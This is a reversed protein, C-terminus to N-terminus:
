FKMGLSVFWTRGPNYAAFDKNVNDLLNNIGLQADGQLDKYIPFRQTYVFSSIYYSGTSMETVEGNNETYVTRPSMFRFSLLLNYSWQKTAPLFPLHQQRFQVNGTATHKSNGSLQRNTSKDVANAFAYGGRIQFYKLFSYQLAADLGSIRAEEVNEYKMETRNEAENFVTLTNIKNRISNDYITISANLDSDVYEASIAKYWSEEPALKDNGVVWFPLNEGIYHPFEMYLEKLTPTKFGNSINGRFRFREMRYMLSLNPSVYGGFQSHNIYRAGLLAELGNEAKLDGQAFLNWNSAYKKDQSDFQNYSFVNELNLETGGVLQFNGTANWADTLRFSSYQSANARVTSDNRLKYVQSGDYNDSNGSLTLTNADSLAYQLKAGLTYNEDVRTQSKELLWNEQNYYNGKAEASLREGKYKFTQSISYDEYPNAVYSSGKVEYSNMDKRSFATKSSLNKIMFGASADIVNLYNSQRVRVDGQLPKNVDRTIINVVSGIASSGYLASSAGNIIEVQKVDATNLRSLNVKETREGVLREGDILILIYKNDLGQIQVNDGMAQNPTFSVGPIFNELAEVLGTAGSAAIDKESIVKTLVPTNKLTRPTFTGTVVVENLAWVKATDVIATSQQARLSTALLFVASAFMFNQKIM